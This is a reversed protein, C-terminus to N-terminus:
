CDASTGTRRGVERKAQEGLWQRHKRGVFRGFVYAAFGLAFGVIVGLM